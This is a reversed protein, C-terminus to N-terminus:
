EEEWSIRFGVCDVNLTDGPDIKTTKVLIQIDPGTFLGWYWGGVLSGDTLEVTVVGLGEADAAANLDASTFSM